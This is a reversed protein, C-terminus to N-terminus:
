RMDNIFLEYIDYSKDKVKNLYEERNNYFIKEGFLIKELNRKVNWIEDTGENEDLFDLISNLSRVIKEPNFSKELSLFDIDFLEKEFNLLKKTSGIVCKGEICDVCVDLGLCIDDIEPKISDFFSKLRGAQVRLQVEGQRRRELTPKVIVFAALLVGITFASITLPTILNNPLYLLLKVVGFIYFIIASLFKIALEPLRSGLMRGLVIGMAGSIVMGSVTGALVLFPYTNETSLVIATLQTKDGLEGIFFALSVTIIPGYKFKSEEEEDDDLKLSWLAFAVFMFGAIVQLDDIPIITTLTSGLLVALGHNLFSGIMIGILVQRVKFKTAFSMALIQTKDGLEAIFILFMSKLLISLM